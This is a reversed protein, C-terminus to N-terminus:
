LYNFFWHRNLLEEEVNLISMPKVTAKRNDELHELQQVLNNKIEFFSKSTKDIAYTPTPL